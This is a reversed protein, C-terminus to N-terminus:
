LVERAGSTGSGFPGRQGSVPLALRLFHNASPRPISPGKNPLLPKLM